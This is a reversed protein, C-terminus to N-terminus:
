GLSDLEAKLNNYNKEANIYLKEIRAFYAFSMSNSYYKMDRDIELKRRAKIERQRQEEALRQREQEAQIALQQQRLIEARKAAEQARLRAEHEAQAIRARALREEEIKQLRLREAEKAAETAKRQEERIRAIKQLEATKWIVSDEIMKENLIDRYKNWHQQSGMKKEGDFVNFAANSSSNYVNAVQQETSISIISNDVSQRYTEFSKDVLNTFFKEISTEYISQPQVSVNSQFMTIFQQFYENALQGNVEIGNIKKVVLSEPKLLQPILTKLENLFDEDM